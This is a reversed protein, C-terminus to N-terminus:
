FEITEGDCVAMQKYVDGRGRTSTSTLRSGSMSALEVKNHLSACPKDKGLSVPLHEAGSWCPIKDTAASAWTFSMIVHSYIKQIAETRNIDVVLHLNESRNKYDCICITSAM